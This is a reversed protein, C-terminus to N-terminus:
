NHRNNRKAYEEFRNATAQWDATRVVDPDTNRLILYDQKISDFTEACVSITVLLMTLFLIFLKKM